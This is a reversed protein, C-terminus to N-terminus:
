ATASAAASTLSTRANDLVTDLSTLQLAAAALVEQYLSASTSVWDVLSASSLAAAADAVDLEVLTLTATLSSIDHTLPM